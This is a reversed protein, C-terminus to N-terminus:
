TMLYPSSVSFSYTKKNVDEGDEEEEKIGGKETGGQKNKRKM